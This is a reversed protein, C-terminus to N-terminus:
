GRRQCDFQQFTGRPTEVTVRFFPRGSTNEAVVVTSVVKHGETDFGGFPGGWLIVGEPGVDYPAAPGYQGDYAPGRFTSGAIEVTGLGMLMGGSSMSCDYEGDPLTGAGATGASVMFAAAFAAHLVVRKAM